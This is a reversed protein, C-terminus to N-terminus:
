ISILLIHVCYIPVNIIIENINEITRILYNTHNNSIILYNRLERRFTNAFRRIKYCLFEKLFILLFQM